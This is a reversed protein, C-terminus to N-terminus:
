SVYKYVRFFSFRKERHTGSATLHLHVRKMDSANTIWRGRIVGEGGGKGKKRDGRNM